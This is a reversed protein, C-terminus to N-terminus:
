KRRPKRRLNQLMPGQEMRTPATPHYIAKRRASTASSRGRAM